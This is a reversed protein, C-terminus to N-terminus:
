SEAELQLLVNRISEAVRGAGREIEIWLVGAPDLRLGKMSRVVKVLREPPVPTEEHFKVAVQTGRREISAVGLTEALSKMVSYDLLNM